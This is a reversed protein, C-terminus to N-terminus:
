DSARPPHDDMYEDFADKVASTLEFVEEENMDYFLDPLEYAMFDVFWDDFVHYLRDRCLTDKGEYAQQVLEFSTENLENEMMSDVLYKAEDEQNAESYQPSPFMLEAALGPVITYFMKDMMELAYAEDYPVGEYTKLYGVPPSADAPPSAAISPAEIPSSIEISPIVEAAASAEATLQASPSLTLADPASSTSAVAIPATRSFHKKFDFDPDVNPDEDGGVEYPKGQPAADKAAPEMSVPIERGLLQVTTPVTSAPSDPANAFPNNIKQLREMLQHANNLNFKIDKLNIKEPVAAAGKGKDSSQSGEAGTAENSSGNNTPVGTALVAQPTAPVTAPTQEIPKPRAPSQQSTIKYVSQEQAAIAPVVSSSGSVETAPPNTFTKPVDAEPSAIAAEKTVQKPKVDHALADSNGGPQLTNAATALRWEFAKGRDKGIFPGFITPETWAWTDPQSVHVSPMLGVVAELSREIAAIEALTRIKEWLPAVKVPWPWSPAKFVKAPDNKVWIVDKTVPLPAQTQPRAVQAPKPQLAQAPQLPQSPGPRFGAPHSPQAQKKQTAPQSPKQPQAVTSKMTFSMVGNRPPASPATAAQAPKKQTNAPQMNFPLVGNKPPARPAAAVQAPKQQTNVPQMNFPLVGNKPPARPAASQNSLATARPPTFVVGEMQDSFTPLPAFANNAPCPTDAFTQSFSSGSTQPTSPTQSFSSQPTSPAQSFSGPPSSFISSYDTDTMDTDMDMDMDM